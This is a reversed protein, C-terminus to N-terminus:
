VIVCEEVYIASVYQLVEKIGELKIGEIYENKLIIDLKIRIIRLKEKKFSM